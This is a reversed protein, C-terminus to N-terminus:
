LLAIPREIDTKYPTKPDTELTKNYFEKAKEIEGAEEMFLGKHYLAFSEYDKDAEVMKDLSGIAKDYQGKEAQAVALGFYASPKEDHKGDLYAQYLKLSEDYKGLRAAAAAKTVRALQAVESGEHNDLTKSAGEYVATWREKQNEFTEEPAAVNESSTMAQYAPSGKVPVEFATLASSVGSSADIAQQRMMSRAFYGVIGAIIVVAIGGLVLNQNEAFWSITQMSGRMFPDADAPEVDAPQQEPQEQQEEEPAEGNDEGKKRVKIAM